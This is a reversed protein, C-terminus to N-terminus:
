LKRAIVDWLERHQDEYGLAWIAIGGLDLQNVYDLKYSLSRSNEYYVVYTEGDEVYTLYPSLADENWHEEVKLEDKKELIEQLRKATVTFGTDPFTNAQADRSTTQWGYGYFPVGLLLQHRPVIQAFEALHQNIDSSWVDKGGFLPAVPGAQPSSKRHFDYAMIVIHDVYPAIRAVDWIQNRSAAGAYMDISLHVNEYKTNLHQDIAAVFTVLQQRLGETVEGSYEIDINVGSFPYALLVSDLSTILNDIAKPSALLATITDPDFQILVLEIQAHQAQAAEVMTLFEDSQLTHYGPETGESNSMLLSGDKGIALGFYAVHTLEPQAEMEDVNWYPVFGYVLKDKSQPTPARLFQFTTLESLPSTIPADYFYWLGSLILLLFFPILLLLRKWV